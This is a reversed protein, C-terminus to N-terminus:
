EANACRDRFYAPDHGTAVCDFDGGRGTAEFSWTLGDAWSPYAGELVDPNLLTSRNEVQDAYNTTWRLLLEYTESGDANTDVLAFADHTEVWRSSSPDGTEAIWLELSDAPGSTTMGYICEEDSCEATWDLLAFDVDADTDSDTDSDSDADSDADTDADGEACAPSAACGADDCDFDGNGDNDAEDSCDGATTGEAGDKPAAACALSFGLGLFFVLRLTM